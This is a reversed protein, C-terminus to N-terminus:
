AARRARLGVVASTTSVKRPVTCITSVYTNPLHKSIYRAAQALAFLQASDADFPFGDPLLGFDSAVPLRQHDSIRFLWGSLTGLAYVRLPQKRKSRDTKYAVIRM